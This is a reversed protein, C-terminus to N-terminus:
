EYIAEMYDACTQLDGFGTLSRREDNIVVAVSTSNNQRPLGSRRAYDDERKYTGAMMAMGTVGDINFERVVGCAHTHAGMGILFDHDWKAAREIGHTPNYISTGRWQHRIRVPLEWDGVQVQIIADNADFIVSPKLDQLEREFYSVGVLAELWNDHNGML